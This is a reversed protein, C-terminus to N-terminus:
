IRLKGAKMLTLLIPWQFKIHIIQYDKNIKAKKAWKDWKSEDSGSLLFGDPKYVLDWDDPPKLSDFFSWILGTGIRENGICYILPDEGL